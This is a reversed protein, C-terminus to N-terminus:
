RRLQARLRDLRLQQGAAIRGAEELAGRIAAFDDENTPQGARETALRDLEALASTTPARAAEARSIQQQAVVWSESGPPGAGRVAASASGLAPEFDREGRRAEALLESARARLEPEVAVAPPTRVPEALPDEQEIARPELSPFESNPTCGAAVLIVGAALAACRRSPCPRLM